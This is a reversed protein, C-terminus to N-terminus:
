AKAAQPALSRALAAHEKGAAHLRLLLLHQNNAAGACWPLTVQCRQLSHHLAIASNSCSNIDNSTQPIEPSAEIVINVGWGGTIRRQHRQPRLGNLIGQVLRSPSAPCLAWHHSGHNGIAAAGGSIHATFLIGAQEADKGDRIVKIHRRQRM